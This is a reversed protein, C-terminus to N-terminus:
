TGVGVSYPDDDGPEWVLGVGAARLLARDRGIPRPYRRFDERPGFQLPNVFISVVVRDAARRARRILGLHGAHLAGMTPVFAVSQGRRRWSTVARRVAPMGRAIATRPR